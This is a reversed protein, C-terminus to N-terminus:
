RDQNAYALKAPIWFRTKEGEVMLQVGETWGRIVEELSFEAPTGKLVSSDFLMGDTAWGTCGVGGRDGRSFARPTGYLGPRDFLMGDPTWGTYDVVVRDRRRPHVIGTGPRLVKYAIGSPTKLADAPPAAVDSPTKPREVIEVLETDFVM